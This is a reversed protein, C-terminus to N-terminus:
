RSVFTICGVVLSSHVSHHIVLTISSWLTASKSQVAWLSGNELAPLIEGTANICAQSPTPPGLQTTAEPGMLRGISALADASQSADGRALKRIAQHRGHGTLQRFADEYQALEARNIDKTGHGSRYLRLLYDFHDKYSVPWPGGYQDCVCTALGALLWVALQLTCHAM